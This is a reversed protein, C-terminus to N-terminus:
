SRPAGASVTPLRACSGHCDGQLEASPPVCTLSTLVGPAARGQLRVTGVEAGGPSQRPPSQRPHPSQRPPVAAPPSGRPPAAVPPHPCSHVACEERAEPQALPVPPGHGTVQSLPSCPSQLCPSSACRAPAPLTRGAPTLCGPVSM